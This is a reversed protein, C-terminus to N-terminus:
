KGLCLKIVELGLTLAAIIVAALTLRNLSTTLKTSSDNAKSIEHTLAEINKVLAEQASASKNHSSFVRNTALTEYFTKEVDGLTREKSENDL